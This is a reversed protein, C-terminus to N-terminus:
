LISSLEKTKNIKTSASDGAVQDECFRRLIKSCIDTVLSLPPRRPQDYKKNFEVFNFSVCCLAAQQAPDEMCCTVHPM